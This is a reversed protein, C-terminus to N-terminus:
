GLAHGRLLVQRLHPRPQRIQHHRDRLRQLHGDRQLHVAPAPAPVRRALQAFARLGQHAPRRQEDQPSRRRLRGAARRRRDAHGEHRPHLLRRQLGAPQEPLEHGRGSQQPDLNGVLPELGRPGFHHGDDTQRRRVSLEPQRDLNQPHLRLLRREPQGAPRVFVPDQPQQLQRPYGRLFARGLHAM